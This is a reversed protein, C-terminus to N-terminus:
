SPAGPGDPLGDARLGFARIQRVRDRDAGPDANLLALYREAALYTGANVEALLANTDGAEFLLTTLETAVEEDGGDAAARLEAMGASGATPDPEREGIRALHLAATQDGAEARKRLEDTRGLSALLEALREAAYRHGSDARERLEDLCGRDALLDALDEAVVADGTAAQRRLADARGGDALLEARLEAAQSDHIAQQRLQETRAQLQVLEARIERPSENRPAATSWRDALIIAEVLRGQRRLLTILEGVVAPDSVQHLRRLAQEAYGYRMRALAASALRRLDGPDRTHTAVAAWLSDPLCEVRRARGIHQTLYDAVLYGDLSGAQEGAVPTLASVAGHLKTTAHRLARDLWTAPTIVREAPSLYGDMAEALLQESLPGQVGVRRADAAASIIAKGYPDPAQEWSNVLDPGAALVQTLGADSVALAAGIRSDTNALQIARQQEASVLKEPVNIIEAFELLRRDEAHDDSGDVQHLQMCAFYHNPWLTSVVITGARVLTVIDTKRLPPDTGLYRHLEDLWLVTRETPMALLDHIEQTKTPQVLWWDPVVSRVAEYLSRTKGCSSGGMLVVFCGGEVGRAVLNHLREDFDRRVYSPLDGTADNTSIAPHVGLERASTEDFRRANAPGQGVAANVRQWAGVLRTHEETTV